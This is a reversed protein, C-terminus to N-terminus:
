TCGSGRGFYDGKPFQATIQIGIQRRAFTSADIGLRARLIFIFRSGIRVWAPLAPSAAHAITKTAALATAGAPSSVGHAFRTSVAFIATVPSLVKPIWRRRSMASLEGRSLTKMEGSLM